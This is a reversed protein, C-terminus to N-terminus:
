PQTEAYVSVKAIIGRTSYVTISYSITSGSSTDVAIESRRIGNVKGQDDFSVATITLTKANTAQETYVGEGTVAASYGDASIAIQPEHLEIGPTAAPTASLNAASLVKLGISYPSAVPPTFYAYLPLNTGADLTSLPFLAKQATIEGTQTNTLQFEASFNNIANAQPNAVTAFCYLGGTAAPSCETALVHLPVTTAELPSPTLSTAQHFPIILKTGVPMMYPDVDPNAAKLEDVTVGNNYAIVGLTDKEKVVYIVPTPTATPALTATPANVPTPTITPTNTATTYPTLQIQSTSETPNQPPAATCASIWLGPILLMPLIKQIRMLAM